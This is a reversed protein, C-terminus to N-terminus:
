GSLGELRAVIAQADGTLQVQKMRATAGAVIAVDRSRLAKALMRVVADNAEGDTPAAAVRLALLARGDPGAILGDVADRGGKPTVRVALRVGDGSASWPKSRAEEIPHPM